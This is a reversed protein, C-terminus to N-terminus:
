VCMFENLIARYIETLQQLDQLPVHENIQHATHNKLGLEIVPCVTHIFRADSTGGSTSFMATQGTVQEVVDKVKYAFDHSSTLFPEASVILKLDHQGAHSVCIQQFHTKLFDSSYCDNFRINFRASARSPIVNSAKNDVDITTVDFHSPQFHPTGTDLARQYMQDLTQILRPIPNDFNQPYAVHGQTGFVTLEGSLSGRRGIKLTDGIFQDSTPEGVLCFDIKEQRGQLWELVRKTGHLAPGEEDGTILLSISGKNTDCASIASVFAAIAGKMDVAGRGQLCQGVIQGAFPDHHWASSDGVPVVDMHGLFCFHPSTTGRRAYVNDVGEYVLRHCDFGLAKLYSELIDLGQTADPTVSPCRILNKAINVVDFNM